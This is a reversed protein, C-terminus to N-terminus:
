TWTIITRQTFIKAVGKTAVANLSTVIIVEVWM